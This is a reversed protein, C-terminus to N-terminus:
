VAPLLLLLGDVPKQGAEGGDQLRGDGVLLDRDVEGAPDGAVLGVRIQLLRVLEADQLVEVVQVAVGVEVLHDLV